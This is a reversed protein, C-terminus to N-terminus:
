SSSLNESTLSCASVKLSLTAYGGHKGFKYKEIAAQQVGKVYM